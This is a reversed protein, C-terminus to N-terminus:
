VRKTIFYKKEAQYFSKFLASNEPQFMPPPVLAGVGKGQINPNWLSWYSSRVPSQNTM